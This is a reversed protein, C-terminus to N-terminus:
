DNQPEWGHGNLSFDLRFQRPPSSTLFPLPFFPDFDHSPQEMQSFTAFLSPTNIWKLVGAAFTAFLSPTNNWKLTEGFIYQGTAEPCRSSGVPEFHSIPFFCANRTPLVAFINPPEVKARAETVPIMPGHGLAM